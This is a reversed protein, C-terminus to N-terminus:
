TKPICFPSDADEANYGAATFKPPYPPPSECGPAHPVAKLTSETGSLTFSAANVGKRGGSEHMRLVGAGSM